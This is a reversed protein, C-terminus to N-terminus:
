HARWGRRRAAVHRLGDEVNRGRRPRRAFRGAICPLLNAQDHRAQSEHRRRRTSARSASVAANRVSRFLWAAINRPPSRQAVLSLLTEQVVDDPTDCWMRAYLVLAPGHRRLLEAVHEPKLQDM